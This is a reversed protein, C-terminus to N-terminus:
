IRCDTLSINTCKYGHHNFARHLEDGHWGPDDTFIAIHQAM